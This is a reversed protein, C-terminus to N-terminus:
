AVGEIDLITAHCVFDTDVGLGALQQLVAGFAWLGISFTQLFGSWQQFFDLGRNLNRDFSGGVLRSSPAYRLEYLPVGELFPFNVYPSSVMGALRTSPVVPLWEFPPKGIVSRSWRSLVQALSSNSHAADTTSRLLPRIRPQIPHRKRIRGRLGRKGRRAWGHAHSGARDVVKVAEPVLSSEHGDVGQFPQPTDLRGHGRNTGTRGATTPTSSQDFDVTVLRVACAPPQSEVFFAALLMIHGHKVLELPYQVFVHLRLGESRLCPRRTKEVRDSTVGPPCGADRTVQLVVSPELVGLLHGAM